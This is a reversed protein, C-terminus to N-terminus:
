PPWALDPVWPVELVPLYNSKFGIIREQYAIPLIKLAFGSAEVVRFETGHHPVVAMIIGDM